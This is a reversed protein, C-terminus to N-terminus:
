KTEGSIIYTTGLYLYTTGVEQLNQDFTSRIVEWPREDILERTIGFPKLIPLFLPLLKAIFNSPMKLDLVVWKGGPVLASIGNMIIKNPDPMLSLALTSIIGNVADPFQYERADCQILEVNSWSNDKVRNKAQNLMADTADVGIIRGKAGVAQQLLLLNLGTGCGIEVVSDGAKLQLAKVAKKRYAWLRYGILYYLKARLDYNTAINRYINVVLDTQKSPM